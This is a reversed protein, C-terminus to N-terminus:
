HHHITNQFLYEIISSNATSVRKFQNETYQGITREWFCLAEKNGKLVGLRWNGPFMDWLRVAMKKGLGQRRLRNLIFLDSIETVPEGNSPDKDARVLAFGAIEEEKYLLFPYRQPNQWYHKLHPYVFRGESTSVRVDFLQIEKLYLQLLNDIVNRETAAAIRVSTKM